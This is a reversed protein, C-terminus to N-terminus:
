GGILDDVSFLGKEKKLVFECGSLAGEAFIKRNEASHSLTFTENETHIFVTHEGVIKGMRRSLVYIDGCKRKAVSNGVIVKGHTVKQVANGLLLATGSPADKKETHHTELIDVQALPFFKMLEQLHKAFLAIGLSMNGSLLIPLTESTQQIKQLEKQTQGTTGIVAPTHTKSIYDCLDNTIESSSFDVLVDGIKREDHFLNCIDKKDFGIIEHKQSAIDIIAKGMKGSSGILIIKM